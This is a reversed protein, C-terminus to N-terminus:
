MLATNFPVARKRKQNKDFPEIPLDFGKDKGAFYKQLFV